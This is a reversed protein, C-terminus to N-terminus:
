VATSKFTKIDNKNTSVEKKSDKVNHSLRYMEPNSEIAVGSPYNQFQSAGVKYNKSTDEHPNNRSAGFRTMVRSMSSPNDINPRTAISSASSWTSKEHPSVEPASPKSKDATLICDAGKISKPAIVCIIKDKDSLVVPTSDDPVFVDPDINTGIRNIMEHFYEDQLDTFSSQHFINKSIPNLSDQPSPNRPLYKGITSFPPLPHLEFEASPNNTSTFSSGTTSLPFRYSKVQDLAFREDEKQSTKVHSTSCWEQKIISDDLIKADVIRSPKKENISLSQQEREVLTSLKKTEESSGLQSEKLPRKVASSDSKYNSELSTSPTLKTDVISLQPPSAPLSPTESCKANDNVKGDQLLVNVYSSVSSSSNITETTKEPM